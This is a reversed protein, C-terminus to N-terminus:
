FGLVLGLSYEKQLPIATQSTLEPDMGTWDTITMLNRGTLSVRLRNIGISELVSESFNYSLSIDKLRVFSTSEYIDVGGFNNNAGDVASWHDNTANTPTWWNKVMTNRRVGGWVIDDRQLVNARTGGHVGQFFINMAFNKYKFTNTLGWILNPDSHGQIEKDDANIGAEGTDKIKAYGAYTGWEGDEADFPANTYDDNTQWVGDFVYGYNSSIPQGIFWKNLIDDNGDGYLDVIENKTYSISGSTNWTFDETSVNYTNLSLEVGSNQVEGINQVVSAIGHISSISRALLLDTTNSTFVDLSGQIKNNFLGFDAGVNFSTTTEWGLDSQGISSPYFGPLTTSGNVYSSSINFQDGDSDLIYTSPSVRAITEYAGVGQNGNQGYSFRLKLKSLVDSDSVFDEKHVNWGLAISPFLGWKNNSGFGSFGDRRATVTVLYKNDYSYNVRGMLSLLTEKNYFSSPVISSGLAAQYWTLADQEFGQSKLTHSEAIEEQFSYLGTVSISHKDIVKNYTLINELVVNTAKNNLTTASGNVNTGTGTNRGYYSGMNRATLEFGTNFRYTLGKIFPVKIEFYNNAFLSFTKDSNAALTNQLPNKFFEDEEWPFISLNGNADYAKTLPNMLFASEFSSSIGSRDSFTLQTNTGITLWDNIETDINVRSTVRSFDDNVAVGEVDLVAGSIFYKMKDTGGSISLSHQQTLGKRTALDAWDVPKGAAYIAEESPTFDGPARLTKFDYFESANMMNPLNTISQVSTSGDYSFVVKGEKGKKTTILIVGNSGRSGYIAASSADKLVEVSAISSPSIDSYNGSFPIGDLVILPSNSASISNRGRVMINASNQEAGGSGNVVSVGPMMGQIAQAFNTFPVQTLRDKSLSVVAGTIDSKKQTGYGVVVVEDLSQSGYKMVINVESRGSVAEEVTIMGMFSFVLIDTEVDKVKLNYIGDFDTTAGTNFGKVLITVGPLPQGNEDTVTGTINGPGSDAYGKLSLMSLMLMIVLASRRKGIQRLRALGEGIITRTQQM